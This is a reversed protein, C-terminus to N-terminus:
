EVFVGAKLTWNFTRGCFREDVILLEFLYSDLGM